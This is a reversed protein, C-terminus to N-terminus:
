TRLKLKYYLRGKQLPLTLEPVAVGAHVGGLFIGGRQNWSQIGRSRSSCYSAGPQRPEILKALVSKQM